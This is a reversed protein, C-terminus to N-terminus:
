ESICGIYAAKMAGKSSIQPADLYVLKLAALGDRYIDDTMGARARKMNGLQRKYSIGNDRDQAFASALDGVAHCYAETGGYATTALTLALVSCVYLRM